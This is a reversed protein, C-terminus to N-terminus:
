DEEEDEPTLLLGGMNKIFLITKISLALDDQEPKDLGDAVLPIVNLLCELAKGIEGSRYYLLHNVLDGCDFDAYRHEKDLAFGSEIERRIEALLKVGNRFDRKGWFADLNESDYVAMEFKEWLYRKHREDYKGASLSEVPTFVNIPQFISAVIREATANYRHPVGREPQKTFEYGSPNLCDALKKKLDQIEAQLNEPTAISQTQTKM